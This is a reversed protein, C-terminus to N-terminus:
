NNKAGEAIWQRIVAIQSELLPPYERPMQAGIESSPLAPEDLNPDGMGVSSPGRGEIKMVLFSTNPSGPEVLNIDNRFAAPRGILGEVPDFMKDFDPPNPSGAYHCYNCSRAIIRSVCLLAANRRHASTMTEDPCRYTGAPYDPGSGETDQAGLEIWDRIAQVQVPLLRGPPPMPIGNETPLLDTNTIKAMLFSVTHDPEYPVVNYMPNYDPHGIWWENISGVLGREPTFPDEIDVLKNPNEHYHCLTCSSEFVPKVDRQYSLEDSSGCGTLGLLLWGCRRARLQRLLTRRLRM